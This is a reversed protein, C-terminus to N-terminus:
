TLPLYNPHNQGFDLSVAKCFHGRTTFDLRGDVEFLDLGINTLKLMGDNKELVGQECDFCFLKPVKDVRLRGDSGGLLRGDLGHIAFNDLRKALRGARSKFVGFGRSDGTGLARLLSSRTGLEQPGVNFVPGLNLLGM